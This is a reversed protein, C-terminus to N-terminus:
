ANQTGQREEHAIKAAARIHDNDVLTRLRAICEIVENAQQELHAFDDDLDATAEHAAEIDHERIASVVAGGMLLTAMWGSAVVFIYVTRGATTAPSYDGFGVTPLVVTAWYMGDVWSADQEFISYLGGGVIVSLAILVLSIRVPARALAKLVKDIRRKAAANFRRM